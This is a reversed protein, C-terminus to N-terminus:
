ADEGSLILCGLVEPLVSRQRQTLVNVFVAADINAERCAQAIERLKGHTLLTRRSFPQSMRRSGGPRQKWRDSAGRRQVHRAVM